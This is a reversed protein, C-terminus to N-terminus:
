RVEFGDLGEAPEDRVAVDTVTAHRPGTRVWEVMASVGVPAGEFVAEVSGDPRNRVWGSVGHRAARRRTGERFFVGQVRGTVEVRRRVPESPTV